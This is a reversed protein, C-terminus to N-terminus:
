DPETSPASSATSDNTTAKTSSALRRFPKPKSHAALSESYAVTAPDEPLNRLDLAPSNVRQLKQKQEASPQTSDQSPKPVFSIQSQAFPHTPDMEAIPKRGLYAM